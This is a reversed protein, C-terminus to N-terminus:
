NNLEKLFSILLKIQNEMSWLEREELVRKKIGHYTNQDILKSISESLAKIDSFHVAYGFGKENIFNLANGNPLAGLMPIGHNIYEYIKSPFCFKYYEEHLPVFGVDANEVLFSSYQERPLFKHFTYDNLYPAVPKYHEYNGIMILEINAKNKNRAIAECIIEPSQASSFNGGYIIRLRDNKRSELSSMKIAPSIYGFYNNKIIDKKNPHRAKLAQEFTPCSSVILDANSLYKDELHNRNLHFVKDRVLGDIKTYSIPDRFNVVNKCGYKQKLIFSLKVSGLEGGTTSFAIDTKKVKGDLYHLANNVWQDLYDDIIGLRQLVRQFKENKTYPIQVVGNENDEVVENSAFNPTIVVVQFGSKRLYNVAAERMMASGGGHERVSPYSRTIYFLTSEKNM